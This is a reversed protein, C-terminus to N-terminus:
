RKVELVFPVVREMVKDPFRVIDEYRILLIPVDMKMWFQHFLKWVRIEKLAYEEFYKGAKQRAEASISKTHEGTIMLNFFSEIADFPNRVLLVVRSARFAPSGQREPFHTKVFQVMNTGVAMEGVLDKFHTFLLFLFRAM